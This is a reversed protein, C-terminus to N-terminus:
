KLSHTNIKTKRCEMSLLGCTIASSIVDNPPLLNNTELAVTAPTPSPRNRTKVTM